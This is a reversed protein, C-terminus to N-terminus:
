IVNSIVKIVNVSVTDYLYFILFLVIIKWDPGLLLPSIIWCSADHDTNTWSRLSGQHSLLNYVKTWPSKYCKMKWYEVHQVAEFLHLCYLRIYMMGSKAPEFLPSLQVYISIFDDLPWDVTDKLLSPSKKFFLVHYEVHAQKQLKVPLPRWMDLTLWTARSLWWLSLVQAGSDHLYVFNAELTLVIAVLKGSVDLYRGYLYEHMKEIGSWGLMWVWGHNEWVAGIGGSSCSRQCIFRCIPGFRAPRPYKPRLDVKFSSFCHMRLLDPDVQHGEDPNNGKKPPDPIGVFRWNTVTAPLPDIWPFDTVCENDFRHWVTFAFTPPYKIPRMAPCSSGGM